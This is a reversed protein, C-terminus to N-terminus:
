QKIFGVRQAPGTIYCLWVVSYARDPVVDLSYLSLHHRSVFQGIVAFLQQARISCTLEYGGADRRAAVESAPAM